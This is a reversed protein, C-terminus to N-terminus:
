TDMGRSILGNDGQLHPQLELLTIKLSMKIKSLEQLILILHMGCFEM